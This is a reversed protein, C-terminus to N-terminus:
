PVQALLEDLRDCLEAVDSVIVRAAGLEADPWGGSRVAISPVGARRAAVLDYPTDGLLVAEDARLAAKELACAVIDPDPKSRDVDDGTVTADMLEAVGAQQLLASLDDATASTATVRRLRRRGLEQLLIRAKPFARLTPLYQTRFIEGRRESVREARPDEPPLNTLIPVVKDGGMGILPRIREFAVVFGEEALAAEWARAHADNSDLLTGDVDILVGRLV